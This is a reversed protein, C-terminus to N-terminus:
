LSAEEEGETVSRCNHGAAKLMRNMLAFGVSDNEDPATAIILDMGAADMQRLKDFFSKAAEAPSEAAVDIVGIKKNGSEATLRMIENLVARRRGKLLLMEAKPRYHAYKTGPSRPAEEEQIGGGIEVDKSLARSLAEKTIIGPRLIVPSSGTMDLVTSEIGVRCDEGILIVDIRGDLDAVVHEGKTPSPSGSINASPAAVATGSQRILELAVESDPMRVAVTNLGGTTVSPVLSKKPLIMTLPGPWFEKALLAVDDAIDDTLLQLDELRCIHVIIPNDSPRGKAEYIKSVARSNLADAGLGYVTETPFAVLGGDKLVRAAEGIEEAKAADKNRVDYIQTKM